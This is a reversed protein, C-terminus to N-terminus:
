SSIAVDSLKNPRLKGVPLLRPEKLLPDDSRFAETGVGAGGYSLGARGNVGVATIALGFAAAGLM